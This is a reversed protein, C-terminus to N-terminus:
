SNKGKSKGAIIDIAQQAAARVDENDDDLRSRLAPLAPKSAAGFMALVDVVFLRTMAEEVRLLDILEPVAVAGAEGLESFAAAVDWPANATQFEELLVRVVFETDASINWVALTAPIRARFRPRDIALKLAPVTEKAPPGIKALATAAAARVPQTRDQLADSLSKLMKPGATIGIQGLALVANRRVSAVGEHTLTILRDVTPLAAPAGISGLVRCSWYQMHLNKHDLLKAVPNVALSAAPGIGVLAHCAMHKFALDEAALLRILNPVTAKASHGIEAIAVCAGRVVLPNADELREMLSPVPTEGIRGLALSAIYWVPRGGKDLSEDTMKHLLADAVITAATPHAKLTDSTASRIREDGDVLAVILASVAQVDLQDAAALKGAAAARVKKDDDALRRVAAALRSVDDSTEECRVLISSGM